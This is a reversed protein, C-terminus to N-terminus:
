GLHGAVPPFEVWLSAPQVMGVVAQVWVKVAEGPLGSSPVLCGCVAVSADM